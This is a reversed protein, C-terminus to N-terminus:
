REGRREREFVIDDYIESQISERLRRNLPAGPRLTRDLERRVTREAVASLSERLTREIREVPVSEAAAPRTAPAALPQPQASFARM